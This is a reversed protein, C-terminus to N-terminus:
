FVVLERGGRGQVMADFAAPIDELGIRGTVM